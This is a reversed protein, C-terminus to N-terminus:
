LFNIVKEIELRQKLTLQNDNNNNENEIEQIFRFLDKKAKNGMDLLYVPNNLIYLAMITLLFCKKKM